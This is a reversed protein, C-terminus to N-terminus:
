TVYIKKSTSRKKGIEKGDERFLNKGADDTTKQLWIKRAFTTRDQGSVEQVEHVRKAFSRRQHGRQVKSWDSTQLNYNPM